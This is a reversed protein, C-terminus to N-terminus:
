CSMAAPTRTPPASSATPKSRRSCSSISIRCSSTWGTNATAHMPACTTAPALGTAAQIASCRLPRCAYGQEKRSDGPCRTGDRPGADGRSKELVGVRAAQESAVRDAHQGNGYEARVLRRDDDFWLTMEMRGWHLLRVEWLPRLEGRVTAAQKGRTVLAYGPRTRLDLESVLAVPLVVGPEQPLAAAVSEIAWGPLAGLVTTRAVEEVRAPKGTGSEITGRVTIGKQRAQVVEGYGRWRLTDMRVAPASQNDGALFDVASEHTEVVKGYAVAWTTVAITWREGERRVVRREFGTFDGGDYLRSWDERGGAGNGAPVQTWAMRLKARDTAPPNDAVAVGAVVERVTIGLGGVPAELTLTEGKAFGRRVQVLVQDVLVAGATALDAASKAESAAAADAVAEKLADDTEVRRGNYFTIIDGVQLGAAGAASFPQLETILVGTAAPSKMAHRLAAYRAEVDEPASNAPTTAAPATAAPEAPPAGGLWGGMAALGVVGVWLGPSVRM